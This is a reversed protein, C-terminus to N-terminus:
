FLVHRGSRPSSWLVGAFVGEVHQPHIHLEGQMSAAHPSLVLHAAIMHVDFAVFQNNLSVYAMDNCFKSSLGPLCLKDGSRLSRVTWIGYISM